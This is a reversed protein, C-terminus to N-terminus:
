TVGGTIKKELHLCQAMDNDTDTNKSHIIWNRANKDCPLSRM